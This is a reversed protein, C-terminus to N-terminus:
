GILSTILTHRFTEGASPILTPIVIFPAVLLSLLFAVIHTIIPNLALNDDPERLSLEKLVPNILEYHAAIATTLAFLGYATIVEM